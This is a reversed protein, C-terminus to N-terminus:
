RYQFNHDPKFDEQVKRNRLNFIPKLTCLCHPHSDYVVRPNFGTRWIKGSYNLCIPCPRLSSSWEVWNAGDKRANTIISQDIGIATESRTLRNYKWIQDKTFESRIMARIADSSLGQNTGDTIIERIRDRNHVFVLEKVRELGYEEVAQVYTDNATFIYGNSEFGERRAMDIYRSSGIGFAQLLMPKYISDVFLPVFKLLLEELSATLKGGIYLEDAITDTIAKAIIATKRETEANLRNVEPWRSVEGSQSNVKIWGLESHYLGCNHLM